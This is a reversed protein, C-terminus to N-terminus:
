ISARGNQDSPMSLKQKKARVVTRSEVSEVPTVGGQLIRMGESAQNMAANVDRDHTTNCKDCKWQRESLKLDENKNGCSSCLKSSPYFRGVKVFYKGNWESKYRIMEIFSGWGVDLIAGALKHNKLMNVIALDEMCIADTQSERVIRTSVKHLFDKRQNAVREHYLALHYAAKRRNCSGKKKRSARRQLVKIRAFSNKIFRPNDIKEGTSLTAFTSLGVDIGVVSDRNIKTPKNPAEFITEVLVSAFYKRTSTKSITITKINGVSLERSMILKIERIKPISLKNGIIECNQPCQFSQTSHKSKYRPFGTKTKFFRKYAKDLNMLSSQLSQSNINKLWPTLEKLPILQKILDYASLNIGTSRYASIKTELALNYVFRCAGFHEDFQKRQKANPKLRYKYARLM